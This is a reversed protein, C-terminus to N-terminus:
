GGAIRTRPTWSRRSGRRRGAWRHRTGGGRATRLHGPRRAHGGCRAADLAHLRQRPQRVTRPRDAGRRQRQRQPEPRTARQASWLRDVVRLERAATAAEVTTPFEAIRASWSVAELVDERTTPDHALLTIDGHRAASRLWPLAAERNSLMAAREIIRADVNARAEAATLGQTAALYDEFKQRDAYQGQGPTHDEFSVLPVGALPPFDALREVLGHFGDADRADLRYLIRHDVIGDNSAARREIADCLDNALPVSRGHRDDDEFGIGHFMTTVGAARVRGEFSRMAFDFPLQVAPRPRLEKELGDSHTDVVGPMCLAGRGDIAQRPPRGRSSVSVVTGDEVVVTADDVIRDRLVAQVNRIAFTTRTMEVVTM